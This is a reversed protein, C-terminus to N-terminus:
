PRSSTASSKPFAQKGHEQASRDTKTRVRSTPWHPRRHHRSLPRRPQRQPRRRGPGGPHGRPDSRTRDRGDRRLVRVADPGAPDYIGAPPGALLELVLGHATLHDALATLESADRSLRKMEYVTVIVRCHPAHAKIQRAAALAKEFEPRVRVWTSIKERPIGRAELVDLQSQLEQTLWSCRAYGIRIDASPRDGTLPAPPATGPRWPTGPARDAPHRHAAAECAPPGQHVPRHPLHRGGRGITVPM